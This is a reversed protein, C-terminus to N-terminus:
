QIVVGDGARSDFLEKDALDYQVLGEMLNDIVHSSTTDTAKNWDLTPPESTINIRLLESKAIKLERGDATKVEIGGSRSTCAAGAILFIASVALKLLSSILSQQVMKM